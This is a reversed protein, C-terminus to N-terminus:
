LCIAPLLQVRFIKDGLRLNCHVDFIPPSDLAYNLIPQSGVCSPCELRALLVVLFSTPNGPSRKTIQVCPEIAEFLMANLKSKGLAFDTTPGDPKNM